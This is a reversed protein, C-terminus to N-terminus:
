YKDFCQYKKESNFCNVIDDVVISTPLPLKKKWSPEDDIFDARCRLTRRKAPTAIIDNPRKLKDVSTTPSSLKRTSEDVNIDFTDKNLQRTENNSNIINDTFAQLKLNSMPNKNNQVVIENSGPQLHDM